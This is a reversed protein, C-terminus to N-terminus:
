AEDKEIIPVVSVAGICNRCCALLLGMRDNRNIKWSKSAIDLLWGEPILGEFFPFLRKESFPIKSVPMSFTIFDHPHNEVYYDEYRFVYDGEDTETLIGALDDQYYIEARRM